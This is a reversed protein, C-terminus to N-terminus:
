GDGAFPDGWLCQALALAVLCATEARLIRPGLTLCRVNPHSRLLRCEGDDFGGEPGVLITLSPWAGDLVAPMPAAGDGREDCFLVPGTQGALWVPLAQPESIAPLTLRECQEAAERAISMWRDRRVTDAVTRATFVPQLTAVGLETAKEVVLDTAQRKLPAFALTLPPAGSQPRLLQGVALTAGSKGATELTAAFEGDRGNFLKVSAGVGRRMVAILYRAAEAELAVSAGPQLPSDVFLRPITM